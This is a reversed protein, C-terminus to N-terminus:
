VALESLWMGRLENVPMKLLNKVKYQNDPFLKNTVTDAFAKFDISIETNKINNVVDFINSKIKQGFSAISNIRSQLSTNFNNINGVIASTFIKSKFSIKKVSNSAPEQFVDSNIIAGKFSVGFPNSSFNNTAETKKISQKGISSNIKTVEM